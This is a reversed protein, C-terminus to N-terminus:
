KLLVNFVASVRCIYYQHTFNKKSHSLLSKLFTMSIKYWSSFVLIYIQAFSHNLSFKVIILKQHIKKRKSSLASSKNYLKYCNSMTLTYKYKRQKIENRKKYDKSYFFIVIKTWLFRSLIALYLGTRCKQLPKTMILSSYCGVYTIFSHLRM